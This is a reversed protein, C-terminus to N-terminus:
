KEYTIKLTKRHETWCHICTRVRETKTYSRYSLFYHYYPVTTVVVEKYWEHTRNVPCREKKPRPKKKRPKGNCPGDEVPAKRDPASNYDWCCGCPFVNRKDRRRSRRKHHM